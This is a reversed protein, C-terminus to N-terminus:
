TQYQSPMFYQVCGCRSLTYNAECELACNHKTYSRYFRLQREHLFFCHRKNIPVDRISSSSRTVEPKIVVFNEKGPSVALGFSSMKPSEVPNHLLMKLGASATSSCYYEHVEVDLVISLGLHKGAGAPRWPIAEKSANAPYSKEPTWGISEFPFTINLDKLLKPNRFLEDRPVRNFVCCLGEDTLVSNFLDSCFRTEGAWQCSLLLEHCPENVKILFNKIAEWQAPANNKLIKRRIKRETKNVLKAYQFTTECADELLIRENELGPYDAGPDLISEAVSRRANNMNCITIAPFPIDTVPLSSPSITVIVPKNNWQSWLDHILLAATVM